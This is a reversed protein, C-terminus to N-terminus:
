KTKSKVFALFAFLTGFVFVPPAWIPALVLWWSWDIYGTLKLTIFVLGLLGFFGISSSSPSTKVESM